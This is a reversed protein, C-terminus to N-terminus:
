PTRGLALRLLPDLADWEVLFADHGHPSRVTARRAEAGRATLWDALLDVQAPTFLQDTDIDVCLRSRASRARRRERAAARRPRPHGDGRAPAPLRRGDFRRRLKKGRTSSTARSPSRWPRRPHTAPPATSAPTSRRSRGTPSCRWSARWSSARPRRRRALGSRAPAIQRAVHNWGSSGPAPPARRHRHPPAAGGSGPRLVALCLAVMGGLSAGTTLRLREVGLADLLAGSRGPRTGPPSLRRRPRGARRRAARLERLLERPQQRM